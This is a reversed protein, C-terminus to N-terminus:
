LNYTIPIQSYTYLAPNRASRKKQIVRARIHVARGPDRATEQSKERKEDAGSEKNVAHLFFRSVSYIFGSFFLSWLAFWYWSRKKTGFM